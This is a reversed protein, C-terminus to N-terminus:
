TESQFISLSLFYFLVELKKQFPFIIPNLKLKISQTRKNLKIRSKLYETYIFRNSSIIPYQLSKEQNKNTSKNIFM